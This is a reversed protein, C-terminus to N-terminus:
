KKDGDIIEFQSRRLDANIKDHQEKVSDVFFSFEEIWDEREAAYLFFALTFRVSDCDDGVGIPAYIEPVSDERLIVAGEKETLTIKEEGTKM